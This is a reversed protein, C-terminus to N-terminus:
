VCWWTIDTLRGALTTGGGQWPATGQGCYLCPECREWMCELTASLQLSCACRKWQGGASASPQPGLFILDGGNWWPTPITPSCRFFTLDPLWLHVDPAHPHPLAPPPRSDDCFQSWSDMWRLVSGHDLNCVPAASDVTASLQRGCAQTDCGRPLSHTQQVQM